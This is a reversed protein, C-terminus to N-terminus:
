RPGHCRGRRLHRRHAGPGAPRPRAGRTGALVDGPMQQVPHQGGGVGVLGAFWQGAVVQWGRFARQPANGRPDVFSSVRSRRHHCTGAQTWAAGPKMTVQSAVQRTTPSPVPSRTPSAPRRPNPGRCAKPPKPTPRPPGTNASSSMGPCTSPSTHAQAPNTGPYTNPRPSLDGFPYCRDPPSGKVTEACAVPCTSDTQPDQRRARVRVRARARACARACAGRCAGPVLEFAFVWGASEWAREPRGPARVLVLRSGSGSGPGRARGRSLDRALDRHLSSRCPGLRSCAVM